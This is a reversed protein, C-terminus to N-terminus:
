HEHPIQVWLVREQIQSHMEGRCIARGTWLRGVWKIRCQARRSQFQDPPLDPHCLGALGGAGSGSEVQRPSQLRHLQDVFGSWFAPRQGLRIQAKSSSAKSNSAFIGGHALPTGEKTRGMVHAQRVKAGWAERDGGGGRCRERLSGPLM